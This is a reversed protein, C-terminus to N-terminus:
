FMNSNIFVELAYIKFYNENIENDYFMKITVLTCIDNLIQTM